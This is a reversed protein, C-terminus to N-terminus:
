FHYTLSMHWPLMLDTERTATDVPSAQRPSEDAGNETVFDFINVRERALNLITNIYSTAEGRPGLVSNYVLCLICVLLKGAREGARM